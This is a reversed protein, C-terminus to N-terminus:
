IGRRQQLDASILERFPVGRSRVNGQRITQDGGSIACKIDRPSKRQDNDLLINVWRAGRVECAARGGATELVTRQPSRHTTHVHGAAAFCRFRFLGDSARPSKRPDYIQRSPHFRSRRCDGVAPRRFGHPWRARCLTRYCKAETGYQQMFELM